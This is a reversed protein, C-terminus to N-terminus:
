PVNEPPLCRSYDDPDIGYYEGDKRFARCAMYVSAESDIALDVNTGNPRKLVMRARPPVM